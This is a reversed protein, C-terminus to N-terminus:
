SEGRRLGHDANAPCVVERCFRDESILPEFAGREGRVGYETVDVIDAYLQTVCDM